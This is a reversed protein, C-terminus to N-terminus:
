GHLITEAMSEPRKINVLGVIEKKMQLKTTPKMVPMYRGNVPKYVPKEQSPVLNEKDNNLETVVYLVPPKLLVAQTKLLGPAKGRKISELRRRHAQDARERERKVYSNMKKKKKKKFL